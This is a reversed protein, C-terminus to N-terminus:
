VAKDKGALATLLRAAAAQEARRKSSGEAQASAGGAVSVEISFMPAHAPGEAQLTAYAPLPLGRQLAWEQLAMKPDRPPRNMAKVRAQWFRAIFDRAPALGGDAFIAGIVAECVDAQMKPSRQGANRSVSSDTVLWRDLKLEDAIEALTVTSVLVQSRSTLDGEAAEPYAKLLMEAIVLALVRDGLFELRQNSSPAPGRGRRKMGISSAHTLAARLLDKDSFSYRILKEFEEVVKLAQEVSM